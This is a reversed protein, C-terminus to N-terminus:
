VLSPVPFAESHIRLEPPRVAFLTINDMTVPSFLVDKLILLETPSHQRWAPLHHSARAAYSLIQTNILDNPGHPNGDAFMADDNAAAAVIREIPAVRDVGSREEMPRTPIIVFKMTTHVQPHGLLLQLQEMTSIARGQPHHSNRKADAMLKENMASSAIKSNHIFTSQAHVTNPNQPDAALTVSNNKDIKSIYKALYKATGGTTCIQVNYASRTLLFLDTNCPSVIGESPSTPPVHRDAVLLSHLPHFEINRQADHYM